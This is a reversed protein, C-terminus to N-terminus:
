QKKNPLSLSQKRMIMVVIVFVIHLLHCTPGFCTQGFKKDCMYTLGLFKERM